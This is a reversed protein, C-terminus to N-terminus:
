YKNESESIIEWKENHKYILNRQNRNKTDTFQVAVEKSIDYKGFNVLIKTYGLRFNRTPKKNNPIYKDKGYSPLKKLYEYSKLDDKLSDLLEDTLFTTQYNIAPIINRKSKLSVFELNEENWFQQDLFLIKDYFLTSKSECNTIHDNIFTNSLIFIVINETEIKKLNEKSFILNRLELFNSEKKIIADKFEQLNRKENQMFEKCDENFIKDTNQSCFNQYFCLFFLYFFFKMKCIKRTTNQYELWM